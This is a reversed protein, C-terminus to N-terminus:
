NGCHVIGSFHLHEIAKGLQMIIEVIDKEAFKVHSMREKLNGGQMYEMVVLYYLINEIENEYIDIIKVIHECDLSMLYQYRIEKRSKECARLMKLAYKEKTKKHIIELIYGDLGRGLKKATIEYDSSIKHRKPFIIVM